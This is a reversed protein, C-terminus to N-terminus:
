ALKEGTSTTTLKGHKIGKTSLLRDAIKKVDGAKGRIALVELCNHKDLHIHMASLIQNHYEHQIETLRETLERVEHSFVITITGVIEQNPSKWEEQVLRERILHRIAESRNPFGLHAILHDFDVLLDTSMSVGFRIAKSM